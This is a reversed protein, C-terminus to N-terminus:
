SAVCPERRALDQHFREIVELLEADEIDWLTRGKMDEGLWGLAAMLQGLRMDGALPSLAAIHSLLERALDPNTM